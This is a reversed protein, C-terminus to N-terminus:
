SLLSGCGRLYSDMQNCGEGSLYIQGGDGLLAKGEASATVKDLTDRLSTIWDQGPQSFIDKTTSISVKVSKTHSFPDGKVGTMVQLDINGPSVFSRGLFAATLNMQPKVVGADSYVCKDGVVMPGQLGIMDRDTMLKGQLLNCMRSMWSGPSLHSKSWEDLHGPAPVLLLQMPFATVIGFRTQIFEMAHYADADRPMLPMMGLSHKFQPLYYAGIPVGIALLVLLVPIAYKQTFYAIPVWRTKPVSEKDDVIKDDNAWSADSIILITAM